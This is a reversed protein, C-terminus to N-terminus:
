KRLTLELPLTPGTYDRGFADRAVMCDLAQLKRNWLSRSRKAVIAKRNVLTDVAIRQSEPVVQAYIGMTTGPQAHRM